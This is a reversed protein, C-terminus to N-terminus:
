ATVEVYEAQSAPPPVFIGDERLGELHFEITERIQEEVEETTHGTAVCGLLDPVLGRPQTENQQVSRRLNSWSQDRCHLLSLTVERFHRLLLLLPAKNPAPKM